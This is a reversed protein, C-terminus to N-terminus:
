FKMFYRDRYSSDAIWWTLVSVSTWSILSSVTLWTLISLRVVRDRAVINIVCGHWESLKSKETSLVAWNNNKPQDLSHLYVFKM